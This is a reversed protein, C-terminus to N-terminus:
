TKRSIIFKVFKQLIQGTMMVSFHLEREQPRLDNYTQYDEIVWEIDEKKKRVEEIIDVGLLLRM